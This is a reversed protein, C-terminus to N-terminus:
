EGTSVAQVSFVEALMDAIQKERTLIEFYSTDFARIELTADGLDVSISDETNIDERFRPNSINIEVALFVGYLFQDISQVFEIFQEPNGIRVPTRTSLQMKKGFFDVNAVYWVKEGFFDTAVRVIRALQSGLCSIIDGEISEGSLQLRFNM